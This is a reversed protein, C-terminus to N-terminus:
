MRRHEVGLINGLLGPVLDNLGCLLLINIDVWFVLVFFFGRIQCLLPARSKM